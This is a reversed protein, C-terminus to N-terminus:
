THCEDLFLAVYGTSTGLASPIQYLFTGLGAVLVACIHIQVADSFIQVWSLYTPNLGQRRTATTAASQTKPPKTFTKVACQGKRISPGEKTSTRGLAVAVTGTRKPPALELPPPRHTRDM